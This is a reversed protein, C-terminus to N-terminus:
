WRFVPVLTRFFPPRHSLFCLLCSTVYVSKDNHFLQVLWGKYLYPFPQSASIFYSPHGEEFVAAQGILYPALANITVAARLLAPGRYDIPKACHLQLVTFPSNRLNRHCVPKYLTFILFAETNFVIKVYCIILGSKM